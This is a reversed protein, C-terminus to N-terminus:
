FTLEKTKLPNKHPSTNTQVSVNNKFFKTIIYETGLDKYKQNTAGLKPMHLAKDVIKWEKKKHDLDISKTQRLPNAARVSRFLIGQNNMSFVNDALDADDLLCMMATEFLDYKGCLHVTKM